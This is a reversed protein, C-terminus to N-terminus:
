SRLGALAEGISGLEERSLDSVRGSDALPELHEALMRTTDPDDVLLGRQSRLLLWLNHINLDVLPHDAHLREVLHVYMRTGHWRRDSRVMFADDGERDRLDGVWYATYNLAAIECDESPHARAIFDRLPQPDGRYARSVM